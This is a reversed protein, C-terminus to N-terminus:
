PLVKKLDSKQTPQTIQQTLPHYFSFHRLMFFNFQVPVLAPLPAPSNYIFCVFFPNPSLVFFSVCLSPTLGLRVGARNCLLWVCQLPTPWSGSRRFSQTNTHTEPQSWYLVTSYLGWPQKMVNAILLVLVSVVVTQQVGNLRRNKGLHVETQQCYNEQFSLCRHLWKSAWIGFYM